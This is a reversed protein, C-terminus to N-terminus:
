RSRGSGSGRRGRDRRGRTHPTRSWGRRPARHGAGAPCARRASGSSLAACPRRIGGRGAGSAGSWRRARPARGRARLGGAERPDPAHVMEHRRQRVVVRHVLRHGGGHQQGRAGVADRDAVEHEAVRETVGRHQRSLGDGDVVRGTTAELEPDPRARHGVLDDREADAGVVGLCPDTAQGLGERDHARQPGALREVEVALEEVHVATALEGDGRALDRDDDAAGARARHLEDRLVRRPPVDGHM